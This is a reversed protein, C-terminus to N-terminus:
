TCATQVTARNIDVQWRSARREAIGKNTTRASRCVDRGTLPDTYYMQWHPRDPKRRVKVLVCEGGDLGRVPNVTTIRSPYCRSGCLRCDLYRDRIDVYDEYVCGLLHSYHRAFRPLSDPSTAWIEGACYVLRCFWEDGMSRILWQVHRALFFWEGNSRFPAFAHHLYRETNVNGEAHALTQLPMPIMTQLQSLRATLNTAFGIKVKEIPPMTVVYIM